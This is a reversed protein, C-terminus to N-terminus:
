LWFFAHTHTWTSGQAVLHALIGPLKKGHLPPSNSQFSPSGEIQEQGRSHTTRGRAWFPRWERERQSSKWPQTKARPEHSSRGRFRLFGFDSVLWEKRGIEGEKAGCLPVDVVFSCKMYKVVLVCVRACACEAAAAFATRSTTGEPSSIM